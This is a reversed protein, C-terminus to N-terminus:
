NGLFHSLEILPNWIHKPLSDFVIPLLRQMFVHCDHSKMGHLKGQNVDVCRGLNSAYGDPLKLEKVWKCIAVRQSKTFAYTAKPKFLKVRGIDKLELEKSNCIRSYENSDNIDTMTDFVNMFINRETHM